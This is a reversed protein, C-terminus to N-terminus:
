GSTQELAAFRVRESEFFAIAEPWFVEVEFGLRKHFESRLRSVLGRHFWGRKLVCSSDGGGVHWM